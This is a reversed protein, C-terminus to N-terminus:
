WFDDSMVHHGNKRLASIVQSKSTVRLKEDDREGDCLRTIANRSLGSQKALWEQTIKNKDIYKGLKSRSKGLGM